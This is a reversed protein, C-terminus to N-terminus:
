DAADLIQQVGQVDESRIYIVAIAPIMDDIDRKSSARIEDPASKYWINHGALLRCVAEFQDPNVLIRPSDTGENSVRIPEQTRSDDM